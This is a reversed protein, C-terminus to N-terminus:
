IIEWYVRELESSSCITLKPFKIMNSRIISDNDVYIAKNDMVINSNLENTIVSLKWDIADESCKFKYFWDPSTIIREPYIKYHKCVFKIIGYDIKPRATLISWCISSPPHFLLGTSFLQKTNNWFSIWKSNGCITGDFDIYVRVKTMM